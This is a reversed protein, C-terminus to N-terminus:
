WSEAYSCARRSLIWRFSSLSLLKPRSSALFRTRLAAVALCLLCFLGDLFRVVVVRLLLFLSGVRADRRNFCLGTCYSGNISSSSDNRNTRLFNLSTLFFVFLVVVDLLKLHSIGAPANLEGNFSFSFLTISSFISPSKKPFNSTLTGDYIGNVISYVSYSIHKAECCRIGDNNAYIIMKKM